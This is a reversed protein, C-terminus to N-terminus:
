IKDLDDLINNLQDKTTNSPTPTYKSLHELYEQAEEESIYGSSVIKRISYYLSRSETISVSALRYPTNSNGWFSKQNFLKQIWEWGKQYHLTETFVKIASVREDPYADAPKGDRLSYAGELKEISKEVEWARAFAKAENRLLAYQELYDLQIQQSFFAALEILGVQLEILGGLDSPISAVKESILSLLRILEPSVKGTPFLEEMAIIVHALAYPKGKEAAYTVFSPLDNLIYQKETASLKQEKQLDQMIPRISAAIIKEKQQPDLAISFAGELLHFRSGLSSLISMWNNHEIKSKLKDIRPGDDIDFFPELSYLEYILDIEPLIVEAYREASRVAQELYISSKQSAKRRLWCIEAGVGQSLIDMYEKSLSPDDVIVDRVRNVGLSLMRDGFEYFHALKKRLTPSHQTLQEKIFLLHTNEECAEMFEQYQDPYRLFKNLLMQNRDLVLSALSLKNIALM